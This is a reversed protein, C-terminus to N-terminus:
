VCNVALKLLGMPDTPLDGYASTSPLILFFNNIKNTIVTYICPHASAHTNSFIFVSLHSLICFKCVKFM